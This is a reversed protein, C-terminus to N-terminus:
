GANSVLDEESVGLWTQKQCFPPLHISLKVTFTDPSAVDTSASEHKLWAKLPPMTSKDQWTHFQSYKLMDVFHWPTRQLRCECRWIVATALVMRTHTHTHATINRWRSANILTQSLLQHHPWDAAAQVSAEDSKHISVLRVTSQFVGVSVTYFLPKIMLWLNETDRLPWKVSWVSFRRHGQHGEVTLTYNM